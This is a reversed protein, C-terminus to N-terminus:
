HYYGRIFDGKELLSTFLQILEERKEEPIDKRVELSKDVEPWHEKLKVFMKVDPAPSKGISAEYPNKALLDPFHHRCGLYMSSLFM